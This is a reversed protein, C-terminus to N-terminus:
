MRWSSFALYPHVEVAMGGQDACWVSSSSLLQCDSPAALACVPEEGDLLLELLLPLMNLVEVLM